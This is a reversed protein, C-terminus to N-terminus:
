PRLVPGGSTGVPFGTVNGTGTLSPVVLYGSPDLLVFFYPNPSTVGGPYAFLTPDTPSTYQPALTPDLVAPGIPESLSTGRVAYTLDPFAGAVGAASVRVTYAGPALFLSGASVAEGPNATLSLLVNGAADALTMRVATGPPAAVAGASLTFQFLQSQAVYFQYDQQPAATRLTGAAFTQVPAPRTGFALTLDYNGVAGASPPFVEVFYNADSAANAVQATYTGDGNVLVQAAVPNMNGDFVAVRPAPGGPTLTVVTATLINPLGASVRATRFRYFDVDTPDSVSAVVQYFTNPAHGPATQLRAADNISDDRHRDDSFLVKEPETFLLQFDQPRLSDYPGRLASQLQAETTTLRADFTAVLAYRGVGFVDGVAGEVRAYLVTDPRVLPLQVTVTSGLPDASEARGLVNGRADYVTLRPKLLSLGASQVRFSVPGTYDGLTRLTFVDADRNTTVDAFRVIPTAGTYGGSGSSPYDLRTANDFTGNGAQGEWADPARAGYLAQLARVDGASLATLPNLHSFMVSAPDASHDLGLVHGAEHLMVALLEPATFAHASNVFVDGAWTGSLFPDHPVSVSLAEASMPQAGLRVDGFRTDAQTPGAVGFPLGGDPVVGFNINANVAWTQFARLIAEQWAPTALHANLAAFLDSAHGAVPTGDPAFSLTLHAPDTWPIGFLAPATRDELSELAPRAPRRPPGVSARRM